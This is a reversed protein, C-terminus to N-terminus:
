SAVAHPMRMSSIPLSAGFSKSVGYRCATSDFVNPITRKALSYWLKSRSPAISSVQCHFLLLQKKEQSCHDQFPSIDHWTQSCNIVPSPYAPSYILVSFYTGQKRTHYRSPIFKNKLNIGERFSVNEGRFISPQFVLGDKQSPRNEPAFINTEPLTYPSPASPKQKLHICTGHAGFHNPDM